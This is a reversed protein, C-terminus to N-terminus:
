RTRSAARKMGSPASHSARCGSRRRTSVCGGGESLAGAVVAPYPRVVLERAVLVDFPLRLARALEGAVAVGGPPLALVLARGGRYRLLLEALRRGVAARDAYRDDCEIRPVGNLSDRVPPQTMNM